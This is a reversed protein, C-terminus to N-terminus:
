DKFPSYSWKRWRVLYNVDYFLTQILWVLSWLLVATKLKMNRAIAREGPVPANRQMFQLHCLPVLSQRAPLIENSASWILIYEM